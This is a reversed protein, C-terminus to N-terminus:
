CRKVNLLTLQLTSSSTFIQWKFMALVLNPKLHCCESQLHAIPILIARPMTSEYPTSVFFFPM